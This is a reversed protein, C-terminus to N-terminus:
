DGFVTILLWGPGEPDPQNHNVRAPRLASLRGELHRRDSPTRLSLGSVATRVPASSPPRARRGVRSGGAARARGRHPSEDATAHLGPIHLPVRNGALRAFHDMFTAFSTPTDDAAHLTKGSPRQRAAAILASAADDSHLHRQKVGRAGAWYPRGVRFALQYSRLDRLEPGYRYGLRVVCAPVRGRLVLDEAELAATAIDCLPPSLDGDPLAGLFLYSAHVFFDAGAAERLAARTESILRGPRYRKWAHGDHLLTNPSQLALNVIVRPSGGPLRRRALSRATAIGLEGRPSTLIIEVGAALIVMVLSQARAISRGPWRRSEVALSSATSLLLPSTMVPVQESSSAAHPPEVEPVGVADGVGVGCAPAVGVGVGPPPPM